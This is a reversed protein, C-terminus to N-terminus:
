PGAQIRADTPSILGLKAAVPEISLEMLLQLDNSPLYAKVRQVVEAKADDPSSWDAEQVANVFTEIYNVQWELEALRLPGGHGPHLTVDIPLEERLRRINALWEQWFGDALYCHMRGYGQDGLFVNRRDDALLWVSDHPSEGPGLDIVALQLEGFRLTQAPEALENPLIRRAPWEDGFMPSLIQNKIADDREIVARVGATAIIPVAGDGVLEGIGAYHDPHAHTVLVAALPKGIEAVVRRLERGGSVTLTGDIAVVHREGEILYANVPVGATRSEMRHIKSM